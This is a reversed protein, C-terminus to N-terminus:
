KPYVETYLDEPIMYVLIDPCFICEDWRPHDMFIQFEPWPTLIYKTM